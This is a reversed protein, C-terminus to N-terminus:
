FFPQPSAPAADPGASGSNDSSAESKLSPEEASSPSSNPTVSSTSTEGAAEELGSREPVQGVDRVRSVGWVGKEDQTLKYIPFDKLDSNSLLYKAEIRKLVEDNLDPTIPKALTRLEASIQYTQQSSFISMMVWVLAVVIGLVLAALLKRQRQLNKFQHQFQNNPM